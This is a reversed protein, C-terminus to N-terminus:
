APLITYTRIKGEQTLRSYFKVLGAYHQPDFMYRTVTGNNDLVTVRM